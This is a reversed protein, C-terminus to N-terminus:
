VILMVKKVKINNNHENKSVLVNDGNIAGNLYREDVYFVKNDKVIYYKGHKNKRLKEVFFDKDAPFLLYEGYENLYLEGKIQLNLLADDFCEIEEENLDFFKHLETLNYKQNSCKFFGLLKEEFENRNIM